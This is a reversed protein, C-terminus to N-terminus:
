IPVALTSTYGTAPTGTVTALQLSHGDRFIIDTDLNLSRMTTASATYGPQKYAENCVDEPFAMQTTKLPTSTTTAIRLSAYVEFHVHPWRGPYAAPFVSTFTVTGSSDTEQVGRLYNEETVGESYLSYRGERDCQWAYVAAGALPTGERTVTFSFTLPIGEARGTPGGFSSRIDSRVIGSRTLVNPGNSGDGPYPGASEDPIRAGAAGQAREATKTSTSAHGDQDACGVLGALAAGGLLGLAARRNLLTSVDFTLGRDHDHEHM